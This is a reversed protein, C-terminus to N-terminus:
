GAATDWPLPEAPGGPRMLGELAAYPPVRGFPNRSAKKAAFEPSASYPDARYGAMTRAEAATAQDLAPPDNAGLFTFRGAPWRIAERHLEFRQQKFRWSVFTAHEPWRGTVQHFRGLSFLLNEFSDRAYEELAVRGAVEPCGFWREHAAVHHYSEAESRPGAEARTQGGSFVLLADDDAAAARVGAEVHGILCPVEGAQFPLLFWNHEDRPDGLERLVAHGAVIVLRTM